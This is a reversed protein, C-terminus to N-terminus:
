NASMPEFVYVGGHNAVTLTLTGNKVAFSSISAFDRTIRGEIPDDPMCFARTLAMHGFSIKSPGSSSYSGAGRNCFIKAAIKNEDKFALTYRSRDGVELAKGDGEILKVLQWSTGKLVSIDTLPADGSKQVSVCGASISIILLSFIIAYIQKM